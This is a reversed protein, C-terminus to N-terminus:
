SQIPYEIKIEQQSFLLTNWSELLENYKNNYLKELLIKSIQQQQNKYIINISTLHVTPIFTLYSFNTNKDFYISLLIAKHINIDASKNVAAKQWIKNKSNTELALNVTLIKLIAKLM